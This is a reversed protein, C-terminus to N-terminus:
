PAPKAGEPAKPVDWAPPPPFVVAPVGMIKDPPIPAPVQHSVPPLSRLYAVMAKLDDDTMQSTNMWPMIPALTSGDPRVGTKLVHIIEEDTWRGLGTEEDPTLNRAYVIGWPGTWGVESGSLRRSFDPAAYLTGPTHCDNCQGITALYEGRKVPDVAAPAEAKPNQTACGALVAAALSLGAASWRTWRM